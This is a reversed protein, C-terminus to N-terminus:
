VILGVICGNKSQFTMRMEEKWELVPDRNEIKSFKRLLMVLVYASETFVLRQGPCIRPGGGFPTYEWGPRMHEWREPVFENVDKGWYLADRMMSRYNIEMNDGKEIYLPQKGELGGGHPLITTELCQRM